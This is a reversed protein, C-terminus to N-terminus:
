TFFPPDRAGFPEDTCSDFIPLSLCFGLEFVLTEAVSIDAFYDQGLFFQGFLVAPCPVEEEGGEKKEQSGCPKNCSSYPCGVEGHFFSSHLGPSLSFVSLLGILFAIASAFFRSFFSM